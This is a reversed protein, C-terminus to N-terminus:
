ATVTAASPSVPVPKRAEAIPMADAAGVAAWVQKGAPSRAVVSFTKSGNPQVRVYHGVLEPDPHAYRQPRAKLAAVGKDSLTKRM